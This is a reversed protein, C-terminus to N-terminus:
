QGLENLNGISQDSNINKEKMIASVELSPLTRSEVTQCLDVLPKRRRKKKKRQGGTKLVVNEVQGLFDILEQNGLASNIIPAGRLGQVSKSKRMKKPPQHPNSM